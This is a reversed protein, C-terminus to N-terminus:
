VHVGVVLYAEVYVNLKLFYTNPCLGLFVLTLCASKLSMDIFLM